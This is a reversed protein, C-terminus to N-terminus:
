TRFTDWTFEIIGGGENMRSALSPGIIETFEARSRNDILITDKMDNYRRNLLEFLMTNEWDSGGRKGVEDVVLLSPKQYEKVVEMEDRDADKRYTSKIKIFFEVATSFLATRLEMTRAKMLQVAMQTKGNGRGGVFAILKGTRPKFSDAIQRYQKAWPSDDTTVPACKMHRLPTNWNARLELIQRNKTHDSEEERRANAKAEFSPDTATRKIRNLIAETHAGLEESM